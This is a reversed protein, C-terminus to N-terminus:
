KLFNKAKIDGIAKKFDEYDIFISEGKRSRIKNYESVGLRKSSFAAYKFETSCKPCMRVKADLGLEQCNNCTALVDGIILLSGAIKEVELEDWIRIFRKEM